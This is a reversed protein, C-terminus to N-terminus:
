NGLRHRVSDGSGGALLYRWSATQREGDAGSGPARMERRATADANILVGNAPSHRLKDACRRRNPGISGAPIGLGASIEANSLPPSEILRDAAPRTRLHGFAERVAANHEAALLGPRRPTITRFPRPTRRTAPVTREPRQACSARSRGRTTPPWGAPFRPRAASATWSARSSSGCARRRPRHRCRGAPAQPLHILGASRVTGGARRVGAHRREQRPDGPRHGGPWRAAPM